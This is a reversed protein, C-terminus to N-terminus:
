AHYSIFTAGLGILVIGAIQLGTLAEKLQLASFLTIILLGGGVMVPYAISLNLKNLAASYFVVNIAFCSLGILLVYNSLLKPIIELPALGKLQDLDKSGLKILINAVANMSLAIILFVVGM